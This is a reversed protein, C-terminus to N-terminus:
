IGDGTSCFVCVLYTYFYCYRFTVNLKVCTTLNWIAYLKVLLLFNSKYKFVGKLLLYGSSLFLPVM